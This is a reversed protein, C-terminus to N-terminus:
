NELEALTQDILQQFTEYPYAGAVLVGNIFVGPTGEVGAAVGAQFDAEVEAKHTRADVCAKFSETNLGIEGALATYDLSALQAQRDFLAD